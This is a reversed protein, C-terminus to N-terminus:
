KMVKGEVKLLIEYMGTWFLYPMETEYYPRLSEYVGTLYKQKYSEIDNCIRIYQMGMTRTIAKKKRMLKLFSGADDLESRLNNLQAETFPFTKSDPM